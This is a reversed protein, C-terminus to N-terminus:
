PLCPPRVPKPAPPTRPWTRRIANVLQLLDALFSPEIAGDDAALDHEVRKLAEYERYTLGEAM